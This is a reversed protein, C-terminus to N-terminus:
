SHLYAAASATPRMYAYLASRGDCPAYGHYMSRQIALHRHMANAHEVTEHVRPVLGGLRTLLNVFMIYRNILYVYTTLSFKRKWVCSIEDSITLFIDYFFLATSALQLYIGVSADFVQQVQLIAM